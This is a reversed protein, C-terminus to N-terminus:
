IVSHKQIKKGHEAYSPMPRPEPHRCVTYLTHHMFMESSSTLRLACWSIHNENVYTENTPQVCRVTLAIQMFSKCQTTQCFPRISARFNLTKSNWCFIESSFCCCCCCRCCRRPFFHTHTQCLQTQMYFSISVAQRMKRHFTQRTWRVLCVCVTSCVNWEPNLPTQGHHYAASVIYNQAVLWHICLMKATRSKTQACCIEVSGSSLPFSFTKNQCKIAVVKKTTVWLSKSSSVRACVCVSVWRSFFLKNEIRNFPELSRCRRPNFPWKCAFVIQFNNWKNHGHQVTLM